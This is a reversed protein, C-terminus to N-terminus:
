SKGDSTEKKKPEIKKWGRRSEKTIFGIMADVWFDHVSICEGASVYFEIPGYGREKDRGTDKFKTLDQLLHSYYSIRRLYFGVDEPGFKSM